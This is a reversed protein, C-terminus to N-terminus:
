DANEHFADEGPNAGNKMLPISIMPARKTEDSLVFDRAFRDIENTTRLNLFEPDIARVPYVAPTRGCARSTYFLRESVVSLYQWGDDTSIGQRTASEAIWTPDVHWATNFVYAFRMKTRVAGTMANVEIRQDTSRALFAIGGTLSFGIVLTFFIRKM